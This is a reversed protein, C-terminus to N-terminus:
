LLKKEKIIKYYHDRDKRVLKIDERLDTLERKINEKENNIGLIKDKLRKIELELKPVSESERTAKLVQFKLKKNTENLKSIEQNLIEKDHKVKKIEALLKEAGKEIEETDGLKAKLNNIREDKQDLALKQVNILRNLERNKSTLTANYENLEAMQMSWNELKSYLGTVENKLAEVNRLHESRDSVLLSVKQALDDIKEKKEGIEHEFEQREQWYADLEGKELLNYSKTFLDKFKKEKRKPLLDFAIRRVQGEFNRPLIDDESLFVTIVHDGKGIFHRSTHGTFFSAVSLDRKIQMELYNPGSRVRKHEEFVTALMSNSVGLDECLNEPYEIDKSLESKKDLNLIVIGKM